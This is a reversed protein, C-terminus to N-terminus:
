SCMLCCFFFIFFLSLSLFFDPGELNQGSSHVACPLPVHFILPQKYANFLKSAIKLSRLPLMDM